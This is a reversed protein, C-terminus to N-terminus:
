SLTIGLQRSFDVDDLYFGTLAQCALRFPTSFDLVDIFPLAIATSPIGRLEIAQVINRKKLYMLDFADVFEDMLQAGQPIVVAYNGVTDGGFLDDWAIVIEPCHYFTYVKLKDANPHKQQTAVRHIYVGLKKNM